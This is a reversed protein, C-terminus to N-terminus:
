YAMHLDINEMFYEMNDNPLHDLAMPPLINFGQRFPYGQLEVQGFEELFRSHFHSKLQWYKEGNTHDEVILDLTSGQFTEEFYFWYYHKPWTLLDVTLETFMQSGEQKPDDKPFFRTM